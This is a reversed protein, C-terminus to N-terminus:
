IFFSLREVRLPNCIQLGFYICLDLCAELGGFRLAFVCKSIPRTFAAEPLPKKSNAGNKERWKKRARKKAGNKEREKKQRWKKRAMKKAGFIRPAKFNGKM